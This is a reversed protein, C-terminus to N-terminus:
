SHKVKKIIGNNALLWLFPDEVRNPLVSPIKHTDHPNCGLASLGFFGYKTYRSQALQIIDQGGWSALLSLMESHIAVFDDNDFGTDHNASRHLQFQADILPLVADLKSFAIALPTKIKDIPKLNRGKEILRTTRNLIDSTEAWMDPLPTGNPLSKRVSRLQLPDILLIIGDARYIYKNVTSMTDEDNLDEGATDFFVLTVYKKIINKQFLSDGNIRIGYVMPRQVSRDVTASKTVDIVEGKNFIPDYFGDAYRKITFDNEATLLLSMNPGIRKKIQEILVAIYHSKGSNKAGIVAFIYNKFQGTTHPLETHCHPCIRKHSQNNCDKCRISSTFRDSFKGLPAIVKGMPRSDEWTAQYVKDLEPACRSPPSSCRFPTDKIYFYEFCYPCIEKQFQRSLKRLM